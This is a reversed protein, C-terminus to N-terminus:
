REYESHRKTARAIEKPIDTGTREHKGPLEKGKVPEARKDREEFERNIQEAIAGYVKIDTDTITGTGIERDTGKDTGLGALQERARAREGNRCIENTMGEM